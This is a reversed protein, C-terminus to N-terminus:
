ASLAAIEDAVLMVAAHTPFNRALQEAADAVPIVSAAVEVIVTVAAVEAVVPKVALPTDCIGTVAASMDTVAMESAVIGIVNESDAVRAAPVSM